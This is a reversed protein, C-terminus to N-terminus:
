ASLAAIGGPSLDATVKSKAPAGGAGGSPNQPKAQRAQAAAASLRSSFAPDLATQFGFLLDARQRQVITSKGAGLETLTQQKLDDYQEPWTAQLTDVQEHRLQGRKADDFATTPQTATMYKLAYSRAELPAPPLGNPRMMSVGRQPPLQAHLYTAIVMAKAALQDRLAPSLGGFADALSDIVSSPARMMQEVKSRQATFAQQITAHDGQFLELTSPQGQSRRAFEQAAVPDTLARATATTDRAGAQQLYQAHQDDAGQPPEQAFQIAKYAGAGGATVAAAGGLTAVDASGRAEAQAGLGPRAAAPAKMPIDGRFLVKGSGAERVTGWISSLDKERAVSFRHRGDILHLSGDEPDVSITIGQEHGARDFAKPARGSASFEPSERLGRLTSARDTAEDFPFAGLDKLTMGELSVPSRSVVPQAAQRFGPASTMVDNAGSPAGASGSGSGGPMTFAEEGPKGALAGRRAAGAKILAEKTSPANVLYDGGFQEDKLQELHRFSKHQGTVMRGLASSEDEVLGPTGKGLLARGAKYLAGGAHSFLQAPARGLPLGTLARQGAEAFHGVVLGAAHGPNIGPTSRGASGAKNEVARLVAAYNFHDRLGQAAAEFQRVDAPIAHGHEEYAKAVREWMDISKGLDKQFNEGPGGPVAMVHQLTEPKARREVSNIGIEGYNRGSVETTTGLVHNWAGIAGDESMARNVDRQLNGAKGFIDSSQLGERMQDAMPRIEKIVAEPAGLDVARSRGMKMVLRDLSQKLLDAQRMKEGGTANEIKALGNEIITRGETGATGPLYGLKDHTVRLAKAQEDYWSNQKDLHEPTWDEAHAEFQGHKAKMSFDDSSAELIRNMDDAAARSTLAFQAPAEQALVSIQGPKAHQVETIAKGALTAEHDPNMSGVSGTPQELPPGLAERTTLQTLDGYHADMQGVLRQVDPDKVARAADALAEPGSARAAAIAQMTNGHDVAADGWLARDSVLGDLAEQARPTDADNRMDLLTQYRNAPRKRLAGDLDDALASHVDAIQRIASKQAAFNNVVVPKVSEAASALENATAEIKTQTEARASAFEEPTRIDELTTGARDITNRVAAQVPKEAAGLAAGILKSGIYGGGELIAGFLFGKGINEVDIPRHEGTVPNIDEHAAEIEAGTSLAANATAAGAIGAVTEGAGLAGAVGSGLGGTLSGAAAYLPLDAASKGLGASIPNAAQRAALEPANAGGLGPVIGAVTEPSVPEVTNIPNGMADVDGALASVQSLRKAAQQQASGAATELKEGGHEAQNQEAQQAAAHEEPSVLGFRARAAGENADPFEYKQGSRPDVLVAM